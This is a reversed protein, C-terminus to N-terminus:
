HWKMSDPAGGPLQYHKDRSKNDNGQARMVAAETQEQVGRRATIGRM